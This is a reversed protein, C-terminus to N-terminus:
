NKKLVGLEKKNNVINKKCNENYLCFENNFTYNTLIWNAASKLFGEYLESPNNNDRSEKSKKVLEDNLFKTSNKIIFEGDSDDTFDANNILHSTLTIWFRVDIVLSDNNIKEKFIKRKAVCGDKLSNVKCLTSYDASRLNKVVEMFSKCKFFEEMVSTTNRYKHEKEIDKNINKSTGIKSAGMDILRLVIRSKLNFRMGDEKEELKEELNLDIWENRKETKQADSFRSLTNITTIEEIFINKPHLDNHSFV